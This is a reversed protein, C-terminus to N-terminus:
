GARAQPSLKVVSDTLTRPESRSVVPRVSKRSFVILGVGAIVILSNALTSPTISEGAFLWGLWVAVVPTILAYTSVMRADAHQSLWVYSTSALVTGALLLYVVAIVASVPIQDWRFYLSGDVATTLGILFGGTACQVASFLFISNKMTAQRQTLTGLAWVLISAFLAIWVLLNRGDFHQSHSSTLAGVGVLSLAIGAVQGWHPPKGQFLQWDLLIIWAPLSGIVVAVLGTPLSTVSYGVLANGLALLLGSLASLKLSSSNLWSENRLRSIALLVLSALLYRVATVVFPPMGAIAHKVGLFTSGWILCICGFNLLIM